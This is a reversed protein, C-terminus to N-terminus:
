QGNMCQTNVALLIAAVRAACHRGGKPTQAARHINSVVDGLGDANQERLVTATDRQENVLTPLSTDHLQFAHATAAGSLSGRWRDALSLAVGKWGVVMSAAARMEQGM